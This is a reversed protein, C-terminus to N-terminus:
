LWRLMERDLQWYPRTAGEADRLAVAADTYAGRTVVSMEFLTAAQILRIFVGPNGEEPVERVPNAVASPPPIRFGPSLGTALGSRVALVTDVM